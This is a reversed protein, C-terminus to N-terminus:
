ELLLDNKRATIASLLQDQETWFLFPACPVGHEHASVPVPEGKIAAGVFLYEDGRLEEGHAQGRRM